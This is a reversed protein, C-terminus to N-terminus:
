KNDGNHKKKKYKAKAKLNKKKNEIKNKTNKVRKKFMVEPTEEEVQFSNKLVKILDHKYSELKYLKFKEGEYGPDVKDIFYKEPDKDEDVKFADGEKLWIIWRQEVALDTMNELIAQYKSLQLKFKNLSTDMMFTFPRKFKSNKYYQLINTSNTKWDAIILHGTEKNLLLLDITGAKKYEDSYMKFESFLVEYKEEPLIEFFELIGKEQECSPPAFEPFMEAYQHVRTGRAAAENRKSRWYRKYWEGSRKPKEPNERNYKRAVLPAMIHENFPKTFRKLFTTVSEFNTNEVTYKHTKAEFKLKDFSKILKEKLQEIKEAEM